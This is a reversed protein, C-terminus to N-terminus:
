NSAAVRQLPFIALTPTESSRYGGVVVVADSGAEALAHEVLGSPPWDIPKASDVTVAAVGARPQGAVATFSLSDGSIYVYGASASVGDTEDVEFEGTLQPAWETLAGDEFAALGPRASGDVADFVGAAYVVGGHADLADIWPHDYHESDFVPPDTSIPAGTDADLALLYPPSDGGIWLEDGLVVLANTDFSWTDPAFWRTDGQGDLSALVYRLRRNFVDPGEWFWYALYTAEDAAAIAPEYIVGDEVVDPSWDELAGSSMRFAALRNRPSGDISTFDGFVYLREETAALAYPARQEADIRDAYVVDEVSPSWPLLQGSRAAFAALGNRKAGGLGSFHGGLVVTNGDTAVALADNTPAPDWATVRGDVTLMVAHSRSVHAVESFEGVAVLRGGRDFTLARVSDDVLSAWRPTPNNHDAFRLITTGDLFLGAAVAVGQESAAIAEVGGHLSRADPAWPSINGGALEFAALSSRSERDVRDFSGGAYVLGDAMALAGIYAQPFPVDEDTAQDSPSLGDADSEVRPTWPLLDGTKGEVAALHTRARGSLGDFYGGVYLTEGDSALAHFGADTANRGQDADDSYGGEAELSWGLARGTTPDVAVLEPPSDDYGGAAVYLRGGALALHQVGDLHACFRPDLGGSELVRVLNPCRGGDSRDFEGGVYWGGSGDDVVTAVEGEVWPLGGVVRGRGTDTAALGGTWPTM